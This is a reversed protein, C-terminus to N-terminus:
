DTNKSNNTVKLQPVIAQQNCKITIIRTNSGYIHLVNIKTNNNYM